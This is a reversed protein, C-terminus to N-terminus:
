GRPSIPRARTTPSCGSRTTSSAPSCGTTPVACCADEGGSPEDAARGRHPERTRDRGTSDPRPVVRNVMGLQVGADADLRENLLYLELARRYGLDRAFFYSNGGDPSTGIRSYGLAFVTREAAIVIDHALM